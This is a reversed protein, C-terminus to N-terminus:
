GMALWPERAEITGDNWIVGSFRALLPDAGGTVMINLLKRYETLDIWPSPAQNGQLVMLSNRGRVTNPNGLVGLVDWGDEVTQPSREFAQATGQGMMKGASSYGKNGTVKAMLDGVLSYGGEVGDRIWNDWRDNLHGGGFFRDQHGIEHPAVLGSASQNIGIMHVTGSTVPTFGEYEVGAWGVTWPTFNNPAVFIIADADPYREMYFECTGSFVTGDDVGWLMFAYSYLIRIRFRSLPVPYLAAIERKYQKAKRSWMNADNIEKIENDNLIDTVVGGVTLHFNGDHFTFPKIKFETGSREKRKAVSVGNVLLEAELELSAPARGEEPLSASQFNFAWHRDRDGQNNLIRDAAAANGDALQSKIAATKQAGPSAPNDPDTGSSDDGYVYTRGRRFLSARQRVEQGNWRLICVADDTHQLNDPMQVFVRVMTNKEEVLPISETPAEHFPSQVVQVPHIDLIRWQPPPPPPRPRVPEPDNSINVSSGGFPDEEKERRGITSLDINIGIGVGGGGGRERTGGGCVCPSSGCSPCGAHLFEAWGFVVGAALVLFWLRWPLPLSM